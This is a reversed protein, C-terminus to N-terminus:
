GVVSLLIVILGIVLLNIVDQMIGEKGNRGGRIKGIQCEGIFAISTGGTFM